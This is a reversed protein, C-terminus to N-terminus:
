YGRGGQQGQGFYGSIDNDGGCHECRHMMKGMMKKGVNGLGGGVGAGAGAGNGSLPGSGSGTWSATAAALAPNRERSDRGFEERPRQGGFAPMAAPAGHNNDHGMATTATAPNAATNERPVSATYAGPMVQPSMHQAMDRRPYTEQSPIPPDRPVSSTYAGPMVQPSMHQAVDRRPYTEQNPAPLDRQQQLTNNNNNNSPHTPIPAAMFNRQTSGHQTSPPSSYAAPSNPVPLDKQDRARSTIDDNPASRTIDDNPASRTLGSAVGTSTHHPEKPGVKVGSPTGSPLVNYKTTDNTDQPTAHSSASNGAASVPSEHEVGSPASRGRTGLADGSSRLMNHNDPENAMGRPGTEAAPATASDRKAHLPTGGAVAGFMGPESGAHTTHPPVTPPERPHEFPTSVENVQPLAQGAPGAGGSSAAVHRSNAFPSDQSGQAQQQAGMLDGRGDQNGVDQSKRRSHLLGMAGVGAAAGAGAMEKGHGSPHDAVTAPQEPSRHLDTTASSKSNKRLRGPSGATGLDTRMPEASAGSSKRRHERTSTGEKDDKHRHFIGLIKHKKEGKPSHDELSRTKHVPSKPAHDRPSGTTVAGIAQNDESPNRTDNRALDSGTVSSGKKRKGVAESAAVGAGLGAAGALAGHRDASGSRRHSDRNETGSVLPFNRHSTTSPDSASIASPPSPKRRTEQSADAALLVDDRVATEPLLSGTAGSRNARSRQREEPIESLPDAFSDGASARAPYYDQSRRTPEEDRAGRGTVTNYIGTGRPYDGLQGIRATEPSASPESRESMRHHDLHDDDPSGHGAVTNYVPSPNGETKPLSGWYPPGDAGPIRESDGTSRRQADYEADRFPSETNLQSRISELPQYQQTSDHTHTNGDVGETPGSWNSEDRMPHTPEPGAIGVGSDAYGHSRPANPKQLKNRQLSQEQAQASQPQQFRQMEDPTPPVSDPYSGPIPATSM